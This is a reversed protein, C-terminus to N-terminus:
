PLQGNNNEAPPIPPDETLLQLLELAKERLRPEKGKEALERGVKMARALQDASCENTKKLRITFRLYDYYRADARRLLRISQDLIKLADAPKKEFNATIQAIRYLTWPHPDAKQFHAKAAEFNERELELKGLYYYAKGSAGNFELATQLESEARAVWNVDYRHGLKFLAGAIGIHPEPLRQLERKALEYQTIATRCDGVIHSARGAASYAIARAQSYADATDNFQSPHLQELQEIIQHIDAHAHIFDDRTRAEHGDNEILWEM